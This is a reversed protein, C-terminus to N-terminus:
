HVHEQGNHLQRASQDFQHSLAVSRASILEATVHVGPRRQNAASTEAHALVARRHADQGLQLADRGLEHAGLHDHGPM